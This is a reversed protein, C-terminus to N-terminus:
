RVKGRGLVQWVAEVHDGRMAAVEDVMNIVACAHVPIIELTDGIALDQDEAPLKLMGHEETFWSVKIGPRSIVYGRGTGIPSDAGDMTFVKTGADIVARDPSPRSIVTVKVTLACNQLLHTRKGVQMIDGFIYTGPRIETVGTVQSSYRSSPTSGVSVMDVPMGNHRLLEATQVALNGEQWSIRKLEEEDAADYSHGAFTIVGRLELCPLRSIKKALDLVPQGPPLGVRKFGCDLEIVIGVVVSPEKSAAESIACAVQLSDIAVTIKIQKALQILRDIKQAGVIPYAILIDSIGAGAMVEAEGLKAATIGRAGAALQKHALIPLKHTKAHPRLSVGALNAIEQMESLNQEVKDLDILVFPTDLENKNM